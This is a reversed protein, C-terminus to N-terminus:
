DNDREETRNMNGKGTNGVAIGSDACGGCPCQSMMDKHLDKMKEHIAKKPEPREVYEGHKSEERKYHTELMHGGEAPHVEFHDVEGSPNVKKDSPDKKEKKESRGKTKELHKMMGDRLKEALAM